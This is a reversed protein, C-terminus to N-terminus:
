GAINEHESWEVGQESGFAYISEILEAMEPKSMKRTSYGLVVLKGDIGPVVKQGKVAATFVHKWSEADMREGHWQVQRSVDSLMAWLLRNQELSRKERGLTVLVPGAQLGRRVLDFLQQMQPMFGTETVTLSLEAV